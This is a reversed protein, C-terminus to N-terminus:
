EYNDRGKLKKIKGEQSEQQEDIDDTIQKEENNEFDIGEVECWSLFDLLENGTLSTKPDWNDNM